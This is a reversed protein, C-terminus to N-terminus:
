FPLTPIDDEASIDIPLTIAWVDVPPLGDVLRRRLKQRVRSLCDVCVAYEVFDVVSWQAHVAYWADLERCVECKGHPMM